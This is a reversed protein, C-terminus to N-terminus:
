TITSWIGEDNEFFDVENEAVPLPVLLDNNASYLCEAVSPPEIGLVANCPNGHGDACTFLNYFLVQLNWLCHLYPWNFRGSQYIHHWAFYDSHQFKRVINNISMEVGCRAKTNKKDEDEAAARNIPNM